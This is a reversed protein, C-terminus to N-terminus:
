RAPDQKKVAKEATDIAKDAANSKIEAQKESIKDKLSEKPRTADLMEKLKKNPVWETETKWEHKGDPLDGTIVDRKLTTHGEEPLKLFMTNEHFQDEHIRNPPAVFSQWPRKDDPDVNPVKIPRYLKGDKAQFEEGVLGKAFKLTIEKFEDKNSPVITAAATDGDSLTITGLVKPPKEAEFPRSNDPTLNITQDM